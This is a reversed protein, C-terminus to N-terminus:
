LYTDTEIVNSYSLLHQLCYGCLCQSLIGPELIDAITYSPASQHTLTLWTLGLSDLCKVSMKYPIPYRVLSGSGYSCGEAIVNSPRKSRDEAVVKRRNTQRWIIGTECLKGNVWGDYPVTSLFGCFKLFKSRRIFDMPWDGRCLHLCRRPARFLWWEVGSNDPLPARSRYIYLASISGICLSVVPIEKRRLYRWASAERGDIPWM